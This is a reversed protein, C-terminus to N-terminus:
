YMTSEQSIRDLSHYSHVCDQSPPKHASTRQDPGKIFATIPPLIPASKRSTLPGTPVQSSFILSSDSQIGFSSAIWSKRQQKISLSHSRKQDPAILKLNEKFYRLSGWHIEISGERRSGEM